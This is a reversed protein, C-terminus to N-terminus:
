KKSIADVKENVKANTRGDEDELIVIVQGGVNLGELKARAAIEDAVFGYFLRLHRDGKDLRSVLLKLQLNMQAMCTLISLAPLQDGEAETFVLEIWKRMADIAKRRIVEWNSNIDAMPDNPWQPFPIKLTVLCNKNAADFSRLSTIFGSAPARPEWQYAFYTSM